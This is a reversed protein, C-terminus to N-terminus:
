DEDNYSSPTPPTPTTKSLEDTLYLDTIERLSNEDLKSIKAKNLLGSIIMYVITYNEYVKTIDYFSLHTRLKIKEFDERILSHMTRTFRVLDKDKLLINFRVVDYLSKISYNSM